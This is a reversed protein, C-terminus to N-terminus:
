KPFSALITDRLSWFRRAADTNFHPFLFIQNSGFSTLSIEMAFERRLIRLSALSPRTILFGVFIWERYLTRLCKAALRLPRWVPVPFRMPQLSARMGVATIQIRRRRTNRRRRLFYRSELFISLCKYWEKYMFHLPLTKLVLTHQDLGDMTLLGLLELLLRNGLLSLSATVLRLCELGFAQLLALVVSM